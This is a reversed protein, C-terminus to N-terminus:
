NSHVRSVGAFVPELRIVRRSRNIPERRSWFRSSLIAHCFFPLPPRSPINARRAAHPSSASRITASGAPPRPRSGTAPRRAKCRQGDSRWLRQPSVEGLGDYACLVAAPAECRKGAGRRGGLHHFTGGRATREVPKAIRHIASNRRECIPDTRPATAFSRYLNPALRSTIDGSPRGSRSHSPVKLNRVRVGCAPALVVNLRAEAASM